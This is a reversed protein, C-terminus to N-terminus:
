QHQTQPERRDVELEGLGNTLLEGELVVLLEMLLAVELMQVVVEVM